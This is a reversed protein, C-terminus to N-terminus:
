ILKVDITQQYYLFDVEVLRPIRNGSTDSPVFNIFVIEDSGDEVL